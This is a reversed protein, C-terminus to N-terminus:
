GGQINAFAKLVGDVKSLRWVACNGSYRQRVMGVLLSSVYLSLRCYIGREWAKSFFQLAM